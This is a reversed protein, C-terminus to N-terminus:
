RKMVVDWFTAAADALMDLGAAEPRPLLQRPQPPQPHYRPAAQAANTEMAKTKKKETYVKLRCSLESRDIITAIEHYPMTGKRMRLLYEVHEVSWRKSSKKNETKATKATKAAKTSKHGPSNSERGPSSRKTAGM